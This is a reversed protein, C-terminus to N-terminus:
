NHLAHLSATTNIQKSTFLNVTLLQQCFDDTVASNATPDTTKFFFFELYGLLSIRKEADGHVNRLERQSSLATETKCDAKWTSNQSINLIEYTAKLAIPVKEWSCFSKEGDVSNRSVLNTIQLTCKMHYFGVERQRQFWFSMLLPLAYNPLKRISGQSSLVGPYSTWRVDRVLCASHVTQWLIFCHTHHFPVATTSYAFTWASSLNMIREATTAFAQKRGSGSTQSNNPVTFKSHSFQLLFLSFVKQHMPRPQICQLGILQYFSWKLFLCRGEGLCAFWYGVFLINSWRVNSEKNVAVGQQGSPSCWFRKRTAHGSGESDPLLGSQERLLIKTIVAM